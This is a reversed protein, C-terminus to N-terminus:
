LLDLRNITALLIGTLAMYEHLAEDSLGVFARRRAELLLPLDETTLVAAASQAFDKDGAVRWCDGDYNPIRNLTKIVDARSLKASAKDKSQEWRL